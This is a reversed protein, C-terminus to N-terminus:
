IIKEVEQKFYDYNRAGIVRSVENGERDLFVTMPVGTGIRFTTNAERNAMLLIWDLGHENAFRKVKAPTDKISLGVIELGQPKYEAYIRKLDPLERRCPPCWTGWFNIILPKGIYDTFQTTNGYIDQIDFAYQGSKGYAQANAKAQRESIPTNSNDGSESSGCSIMINFVFMLLFISAFRFYRM